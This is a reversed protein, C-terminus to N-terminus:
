HVQTITNGSIRIWLRDRFVNKATVPVVLKYTADDYQYFEALIGVYRTERDLVMEYERLETPAVRSLQRRNVLSDGLVNQDREYLEIFDARAFADPSRLEYLRIFVPAPEDRTNPNIDEAASVSLTFDTNLNFVRGVRSEQSSCGVLMLAGLLVLIRM